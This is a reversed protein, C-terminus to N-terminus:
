RLDRGRQPKLKKTGSRMRRKKKRGRKRTFTIVKKGVEGIYVNKKPGELSTNVEKGERPKEKPLCPVKL